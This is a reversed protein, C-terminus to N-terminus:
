MQFNQNWTPKLTREAIKTSFKETLIEEHEVVDRKDGTPEQKAVHPDSTGREMRTAHSPHEKLTDFGSDISTEPINTSSSANSQTSLNSLGSTSANTETSLSDLRSDSEVGVSPPQQHIELSLSEDVVTTNSIEVYANPELLTNKPKANLKADM